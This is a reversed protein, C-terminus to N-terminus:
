HPDERFMDLMQSEAQRIEEPSPPAFPATRERLRQSRTRLDASKRRMEQSEERASASVVRVEEFAEQLLVCLNIVADQQFCTQGPRAVQCQLQALREQADLLWADVDQPTSSTPPGNCPTVM